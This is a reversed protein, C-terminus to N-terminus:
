ALGQAALGDIPRSAGYGDGLQMVYAPDEAPAPAAARAGLPGLCLAAALLLALRRTM